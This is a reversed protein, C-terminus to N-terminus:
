MRLSAGCSVSSRAISFTAEPSVNTSGPSMASNTEACPCASTRVRALPLDQLEEGVAHRIRVDCGLEEDALLGHLAVHPVDERLEFGVRARLRDRDREALGHDVSRHVLRLSREERLAHQGLLLLAAPDGLQEVVPRDLLEGRDRLHEVGAEGVERAAVGLLSGLHERTPEVERAVGRAVQPREAVVELRAHEM